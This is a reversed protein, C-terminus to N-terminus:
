RRPCIPWGRSWSPRIPDRPHSLGANRSTTAACFVPGAARLVVVALDEGAAEIADLHAALEGWLALNLANRKDARNLTLTAVAGHQAFLVLAGSM